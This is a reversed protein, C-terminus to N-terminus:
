RRRELVEVRVVLLDLANRLSTIEKALDRRPVYNFLKETEPVTKGLVRALRMLLKAQPRTEERVWRTVQSANTKLARGMARYAGRRGGHWRYLEEEFKTV